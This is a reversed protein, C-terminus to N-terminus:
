SNNKYKKTNKVIETKSTAALWALHSGGLILRLKFPWWWILGLIRSIGAKDPLKQGWIGLVQLMETCASGVIGTCELMNPMKSGCISM